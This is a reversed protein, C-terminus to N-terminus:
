QSVQTARPASNQQAIRPSIEERHELPITDAVDVNESDSEAEAPLPTRPLKAYGDEGRLRSAIDAILRPDHSVFAHALEFPKNPVWWPQEGPPAANPAGVVADDLRVYPYLEYDAEEYWADLKALFDSGPRMALHRKDFTPFGALEAGQHPTSLTFLRAIKLRRLVTKDDAAADILSASDTHPMAAYRAVLGGMSVAVVDVETTTWPDDSPWREDVERILQSRCQDFDFAFPFAIGLFDEERGDCARILETELVTSAIGPDLYGAIVVVPRQPSRPDAHMQEIATEADNVSLAFSPNQESACGAVLSLAAAILFVM